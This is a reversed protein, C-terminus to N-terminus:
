AVHISSGDILRSTLVWDSKAQVWTSISNRTSVCFTYELLKFISCEKSTEFISSVQGVIDVLPAHTNGHFYAWFIEGKIKM